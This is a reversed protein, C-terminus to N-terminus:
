IGGAVHGAREDGDIAPEVDAQRLAPELGHTEVSGPPEGFHVDGTQPVFIAAFRTMAYGYEM